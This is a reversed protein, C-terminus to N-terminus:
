PWAEGRLAAESAAKAAPRSELVAPDTRLAEEFAASAERARGSAQLAVALDVRVPADRPALSVAQELAGAAEAPEGLAFLQLLGLRHWADASAPDLRVSERFLDALEDWRELAVLHKALMERVPGRREAGIGLVLAARCAAVGEERGKRECLRAQERAAATEPREAGAAELVALALFLTAALPRVGRLDAM